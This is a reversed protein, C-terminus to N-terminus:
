RREHEAETALAVPQSRGPMAMPKLMWGQRPDRYRTAERISDQVEAKTPAAAPASAEPATSAPTCASLGLAAALALGVLALHRHTTTRLACCSALLVAVLFGQMFAGYYTGLGISLMAAVALMGGILRDAHASRGLLAAPRIVRFEADIIEPHHM